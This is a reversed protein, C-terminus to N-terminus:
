NITITYVETPDLLAPQYIWVNYLKAEYNNNGPVLIDNEQKVFETTIDANSASKLLVSTISKNAAAPIAIIIKNCNAYDAAALDFTMNTVSSNSKTLARINLEDEATLGGKFWARYGTISNSSNATKGSTAIIKNVTASDNGLNDKPLSTSDGWGYTLIAKYVVDDEVKYSAFKGSAGDLSEATITQQTLDKTSTVIGGTDKVGTAPGFSYSGAKFTTEWEPIIETGVEYVGGNTLSITASPQTVTPEAQKALLSSLVQKLNKGKAALTAQGNTLSTITGVKTTVILDEDFYVNEADYNGDMATWENDYFVYATHQYKNTENGIKDKIILIDGNILDNEADRKTPFLESHIKNESNTITITINTSLNSIADEIVDAISKNEWQQDINDYVLVHGDGVAQIVVDTLDDLSLAVPSATGGSEVGDTIKKSGLYLEFTNLSSNEIFYLTDSDPTIAKFEDPTGRRFKVYNEAM